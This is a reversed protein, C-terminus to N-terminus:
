RVEASLLEQWTRGWEEAIGTPMCGVDQQFHLIASTFKPGAVGDAEGVETCDLAKLWKQVPKICPHTNNFKAGITITYRILEEDCAAAGLAQRLEDLFKERTYEPAGGFTARYAQRHGYWFSKQERTDIHVFNGDSGEYLGIGLVGIREAFRAIEAPAVGKIYFDAAQGKTHRSNVAGGIAVNHKACRYGSTIYVPKGFHDRIQQLYASLRDDHLTANCGCKCQFERIRFNKQLQVDEQNSYSEVAM